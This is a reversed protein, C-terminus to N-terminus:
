ASWFNGLADDLKCSKLVPPRPTIRGAGWDPWFDMHTTRIVMLKTVYFDLTEKRIAGMYM